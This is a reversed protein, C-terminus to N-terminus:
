AVVNPGFRNLFKKKKEAVFFKLDEVFNIVDEIEDDYSFKFILSIISNKM